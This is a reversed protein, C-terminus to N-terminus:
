VLYCLGPWLIRELLYKAAPQEFFVAVDKTGERQLRQDRKRRRRRVYEVLLQRRAGRKISYLSGYRAVACM